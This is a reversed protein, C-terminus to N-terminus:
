DLSTDAIIKDEFLQIQEVLSNFEDISNKIAEDDALNWDNQPNSKIQLIKKNSGLVYITPFGLSHKLMKVTYADKNKLEDVYLIEIYKNYIKAAEIADKKEDWFIVAFDVQDKYKKALSNLAPVEGKTPVNWSAYTLLILPKQFDQIQCNSNSLCTANFNDMYSGVLHEDILQKYYFYAEQRKGLSFARNSKEKFESYYRYIQESFYRKESEEVGFNEDQAFADFHTLIMFFIIFLFKM